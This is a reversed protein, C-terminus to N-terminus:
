QAYLHTLVLGVDLLEALALPFNSGAVPLGESTRGVVRACSTRM